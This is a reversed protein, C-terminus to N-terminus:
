VEGVVESYPRSDKTIEYDCEMNDNRVYVMDAEVEGFRNKWDEGLIDIPHEVPDDKDDALVGDAYYTM